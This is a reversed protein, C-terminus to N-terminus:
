LAVVHNKEFGIHLTSLDEQIEGIGGTKCWEECKSYNNWIVPENFFYPYCRYGISLVSSDNIKVVIFRKEGIRIIELNGYYKSEFNM